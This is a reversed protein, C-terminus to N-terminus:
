CAPATTTSWSTPRAFLRHFVELGRPNRLDIAVGRQGRIYPMGREALQRRRPDRGQDRRRGARGPPHRRLPRGPHDGPRPRPDRRPPGNRRTTGRDATRPSRRGSSRPTRRASGTGTPATTAPTAVLNIPNGPMAVRGSRRTTSRSGCAWRRSPRPTWGSTEAAAAPRGPRRGGEPDREVGPEVPPSPTKRAARPGLDPQGPAPRADLRGEIREDELIDSLGMADLAQAQFKATLTALFLWVGDACQYRTYMPHPGGPGYNALVEPVAPDIVLTRAPRSWRPTSGAWRSSRGSAPSAGARVAGAVAAAAAWVGQLYLVYPAVPDVPGGEYSSQRLAM